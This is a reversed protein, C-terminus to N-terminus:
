LFWLLGDFEVPKPLGAQSRGTWTVSTEIVGDGNLDGHMTLGRYGAAGADAAWEARSVGPRWGWVSLQEGVEWDTITSWTTSGGRGDLFFVDRDAGGTLFNSGTGGDLVDSGAGADVADDGGMTNIFDAFGTGHVAEGGASGIFTLVLYDVPGAYGAAAPTDALGNGLDTRAFTPALGGVAGGMAPVTMVPGAGFRVTEIGSLADVGGPHSVLTWNGVGSVTAESATGALVALDTGDGGILVNSGAGGDLTDAGADGKLVDGGGGGRLLDNGAGGRLVDAFANGTVTDAGTLFDMTLFPFTRIDDNNVRYNLGEIAVLPQVSADQSRFNAITFANNAGSIFFTLWAVPPANVGITAAAYSFDMMIPFPINYDHTPPPPSAPGDLLWSALGLSTMDVGRGFRDYATVLPM